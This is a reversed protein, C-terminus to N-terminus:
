KIKNNLKEIWARSVDIFTGIESIMKRDAADVSTSRQTLVELSMTNVLVEGLERRLSASDCSEIAEITAVRLIQLEKNLSSLPM